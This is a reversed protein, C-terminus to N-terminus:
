CKLRSHHRDLIESKIQEALQTHARMLLDCMSENYQHVYDANVTPVGNIDKTFRASVDENKWESVKQRLNQLSAYIAPYYRSLCEEIEVALEPPKEALPLTDQKSRFRTIPLEVWSKIATWISKQRDRDVEPVPHKRRDLLGLITTVAFFTLSLTAYGLVVTIVVAVVNYGVMSKPIGFMRSLLDDLFAKADEIYIALLSGGMACICGGIATIIKTTKRM